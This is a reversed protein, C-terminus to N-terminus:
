RRTGKSSRQMINANLVFSVATYRSSLSLLSERALMFDGDYIDELDQGPKVRLTNFLEGFAVDMIQVNIFVFAFIIACVNVIWLWYKYVFDRSLM